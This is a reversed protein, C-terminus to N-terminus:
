LLRIKRFLMRSVTDDCEDVADVIIYVVSYMKCVQTLLDLCEQLTLKRSRHYSEYAEIICGPLKSRIQVLRRLLSTALNYLTQETRSRYNCYIYAVGTEDSPALHSLHDIVTASMTTKGAGPAGPCLLSHSGSSGDAWCSFITDELFWKGTTGQRRGLNDAQQASFEITSIWALCAARKKEEEIRNTSDLIAESVEAIEDIRKDMKQNTAYTIAIILAQEGEFLGALKDFAAKVREDGGLFLVAAFKKWRGDEVALESCALIELLCAFIVVIKDRFGKPLGRQMYEDLRMTFDRLKDFLEEIWDYM